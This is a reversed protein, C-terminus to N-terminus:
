RMWRMAIFYSIPVGDLAGLILPFAYAFNIDLTGFVFIVLFFMLIGLAYFPLTIMTHKKYAGKGVRRPKMIKTTYYDKYFARERALVDFWCLHSITGIAAGFVFVALVKGLELQGFDPIFCALVAILLPLATFIARLGDKNSGSKRSKRQGKM